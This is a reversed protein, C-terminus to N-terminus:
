LYPILSRESLKFDSIEHDAKSNLVISNINIKRKIKQKKLEFNNEPTESILVPTM